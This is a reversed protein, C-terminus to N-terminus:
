KMTLQSDSNSKIRSSELFELFLLFLYAYLYFLFEFLIFNNIELKLCNIKYM